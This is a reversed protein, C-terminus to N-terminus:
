RETKKRIEEVLEQVMTCPVMDSPKKLNGDLHSRLRQKAVQIAKSEDGTSTLRAYLQRDSKSYEFGTKKQFLEAFKSCCQVSDIVTPISGYYAFFWVELCPNSWAVNIGNNEAQRILVDFDPVKDRDFVIWPIRNQVEKSKTELCIDILDKTPAEVVKLSINNMIEKPLSYRLGEFYAKETCKTDTVILYYGLQFLRKRMRMERSLRRGSHDDAM